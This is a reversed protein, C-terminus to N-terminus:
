FFIIHLNSILIVKFGKPIHYGKYTFDSIVERFNGIAPPSLRLVERAVNWSYKMNQIDRWNLLEGAAKSNVIEMQEENGRLRM